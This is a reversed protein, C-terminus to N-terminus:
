GNANRKRLYDLIVPTNGDANQQLARCAAEVNSERVAQILPAFDAESKRDKRYTAFIYRLLLQQGQISIMSKDLRRNGCHHYFTGVLHNVAMVEDQVTEADVYESLHQELESLLIAHDEREMALRIAERHLTMALQQIEEVDHEDLNLVRAGVNNEYTVLGEQQLRNIAERIPTCSVQLTDQLENVNLRNGLPIRLSIIGNRLEEYVQDVLSNKKIM